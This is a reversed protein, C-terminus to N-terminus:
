YFRPMPSALTGRVVIGPCRKVRIAARVVVHARGFFVPDFTEGLRIAASGAGAGAAREFFPTGVLRFPCSDGEVVGRCSVSGDDGDSSVERGLGLLCAFATARSAVPERLAGTSLETIM